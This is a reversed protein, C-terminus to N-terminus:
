GYIYPAEFMVKRPELRDGNVVINRMCGVVGTNARSGSGIKIKDGVAFHLDGLKEQKFRNDVALFVEGTGYVLKLSHWIGRQKKVSILDTTNRNGDTLEFRVEDNVVRVEWYLGTKAESSALVSLNSASKFDFDLSLSTTHNNPWRYLTTKTCHTLRPLYMVYWIHSSAFPYTIPIVQVDDEIFEPRLIGIYHVKPNLKRLEYIISIDNYFVYKLCGAFNNRSILGRKKQLEPGGGLYIEPDIYLFANERIRLTLREQNLSLHVRDSEHFITLNHWATLNAHRGLVATMVEGGFDLEVYVSGNCISAAIYHDITGDQGGSAYFLASDDFRTKFWLSFRSLSSHVRDKWDYM